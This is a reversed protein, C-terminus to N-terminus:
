SNLKATLQRHWAESLAPLNALEKLEDAAVGKRYMTEHARRVTWAPHPRAIREIGQGAEITGPTLVRLYWGSFGNKVVMKPLLPESWRRGLKWCPQRPQTVQVVVTGIQHTDGICVEDEALNAITLNEGFMGGIVNDSSLEHSWFPFHDASYCLIAKDPGGHNKLDAQGDGKIGVFTVDASGDVPTKIFGSYWPQTNPADSGPVGLQRPMGVQVSQVFPTQM